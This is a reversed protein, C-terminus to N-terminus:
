DRPVRVRFHSRQGPGVAITFSLGTREDSLADWMLLGALTQCYHFDPRSGWIPAKNWSLSASQGDTTVYSEVRSSESNVESSNRLDLPVATHGSSSNSSETHTVNCTSCYMSIPLTHNLSVKIIGTNCDTALFRVTFVLPFISLPNIHLSQLNHLDAITYCNNTAAVQLHNIFGVVL